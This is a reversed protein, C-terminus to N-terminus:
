SIVAGTFAVGNNWLMTTPGTAYSWSFITEAGALYSFPSAQSFTMGTFPGAGTISPNVGPAYVAPIAISITIYSVFEGPTTTYNPLFNVNVKNPTAGQQISAQLYPQTLGRLSLIIMALLFFKKM